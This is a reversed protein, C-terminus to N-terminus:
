VRQAFKLGNDALRFSRKLEILTSVPLYDLEKLLMELYGHVLQIHVRLVSSKSSSRLFELLSQAQLKDCEKVSIKQMELKDKAGLKLYHKAHLISIVCSMQDILLHLNEFEKKNKQCNSITMSIKALFKGIDESKKLESLIDFTLQSTKSWNELSRILKHCRM